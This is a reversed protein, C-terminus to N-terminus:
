GKKGYGRLYIFAIAIIALVPLLVTCVTIVAASTSGGYATSNSIQVLAVPLLIGAVFLSVVIMVVRTVEAKTNRKFRPMRGEGKKGAKLYIFAIAIVALVPLLVTAVTVVASNVGTYTADTLQSIAVPLLIGAVFLSVIIMVVRTVEGKLNKYLSKM